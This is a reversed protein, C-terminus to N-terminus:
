VSLQSLEDQTLLRLPKGAAWDVARQTFSGGTILYGGSSISSTVLAYLARLEAVDVETNDELVMAQFVEGASTEVKLISRDERRTEITVRAGQQRLIKMVRLALPPTPEYPVQSPVNAPPTPLATPPPVAPKQPQVTAWPGPDASAYAGGGNMRQSRAPQAQVRQQPASAAQQGPAQRTRAGPQQRASPRSSVQRPEGAAQFGQEHAKKWSEEWGNRRSAVIFALGGFTVLTSVLLCLVQEGFLLRAAVFGGAGILMLIIALVRPGVPFRDFMDGHGKRVM